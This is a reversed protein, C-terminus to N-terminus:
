HGDEQFFIGGGGFAYFKFKKCILQKEGGGGFYKTGLLTREKYM